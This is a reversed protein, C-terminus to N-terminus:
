GLLLSRSRPTSSGVDGRWTDSPLCAKVQGGVGLRVLSVAACLVLGTRTIMGCSCASPALGISDAAESRGEIRWAMQSLCLLWEQPTQALASAAQLYGGVT